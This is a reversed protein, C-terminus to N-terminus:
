KMKPVATNKRNKKKQTEISVVMGDDDQISKIVRHRLRIEEVSDPLVSPKEFTLVLARSEIRTNIREGMLHSQLFSEIVGTHQECADIFLYAHKHDEGVVIDMTGASVPRDNCGDFDCTDVPARRLHFM